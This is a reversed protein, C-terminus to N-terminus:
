QYLSINDPIRQYITINTSLNISQRIALSIHQNSSMYAINSRVHLMFSLSPPLHLQWHRESDWLIVHHTASMRTAHAVLVVRSNLSGVNRHSPREWTSDGTKSNWFYVLNYRCGPAAYCPERHTAGDVESFRPKSLCSAGQTPAFLFESCLWHEFM